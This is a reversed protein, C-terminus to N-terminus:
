LYIQVQLVTTEFTGGTIRNRDRIWNLNIGWHSRPLWQIGISLRTFGGKINALETQVQPSFKLWFGRVVEWAVEHIITYQPTGKWGTQARTNLETWLSLRDSMAFGYGIGGIWHRVTRDSEDRYLGSLVLVHDNPLEWQIRGTVLAARHGDDDILSEARGPGASFQILRRDSTQSIEVGYVQDDQDFGLPRRNLSTHDALLLGYAPMFRGVRFGFGNEGQYGLWHERTIFEAPDNAFRGLEAYATWEDIRVAIQADARMWLDRKFELVGADLLLRSPRLTLGIDLPTDWTRFLGYLSHEERGAGMTEPSSQGFSSLEERSLSRGYPTLLSGGSPSYHCASCRTYQKALFHAEAFSRSTPLFLFCLALFLLVRRM